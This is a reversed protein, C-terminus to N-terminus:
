IPVKDDFKLGLQNVQDSVKSFVVDKHTELGDVVQEGIIILDPRSADKNELM